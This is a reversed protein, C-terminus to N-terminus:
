KEPYVVIGVTELSMASELAIALPLQPQCYAVAPLALVARLVVATAALKGV